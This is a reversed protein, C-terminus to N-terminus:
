KVGAVRPGTRYRSFGPATATGGVKFTLVRRPAARDTIRQAAGHGRPDGVIQRLDEGPLCHLTRRRYGPLSPQRGHRDPRPAQAASDRYTNREQQKLRRESKHGAPPRWHALLGCSLITCGSRPPSRFERIQMGPPACALSSPAVQMPRKESVWAQLQAVAATENEAEAEGAM